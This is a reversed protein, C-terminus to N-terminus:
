STKTPYRPFTKPSNPAWLKHERKIFDTSKSVSPNYSHVRLWELDFRTEHNDPWTIVVADKEMVVSQIRIDLDIEVTSLLRQKTGAHYCKACRCHDRLWIPQFSSVGVNAGFNVTLNGTTANISVIPPSEPRPPIPHFPKQPPHPHVPSSRHHLSDLHTTTEISLTATSAIARKSLQRRTSPLHTTPIIRSRSHFSHHPHQHLIM